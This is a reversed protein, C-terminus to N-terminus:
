IHRIYTGRVLWESLSSFFDTKNKEIQEMHEVDTSKKTQKEEM